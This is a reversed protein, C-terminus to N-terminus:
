MIAATILFLSSFGQQVKFQAPSELQKKITNRIHTRVLLMSQLLYIYVLVFCM